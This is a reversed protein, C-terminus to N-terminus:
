LTSVTTATLTGTKDFCVIDVNALTNFKSPLLVDINQNRLRAVGAGIATVLVAYFLVIPTRVMNSVSCCAVVLMLMSLTELVYASM